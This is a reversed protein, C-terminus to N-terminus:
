PHRHLILEHNDYVAYSYHTIWDGTNVYKANNSLPIDLPLHRHGFVFFDTHEKQLSQKCFQILWENDEGLFVQDTHGTKSRSKRSFFDALGIGIVPPTISFLFRCVPNRFIKKLFKYGKDGPGLGDGHGILWTKGDREFRTPEFYVQMGLEKKFYDNMWMDHNGVFFHVPIGDDTFQALAALVRVYGKPVVTRYEFWFDFLDGLVFLEATDPRIATLFSIIEHERKRSTVTDPAGLHFDSIFYIKKGAM